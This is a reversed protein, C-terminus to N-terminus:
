STGEKTGTQESTPQSNTSQTSTSPTEDNIQFTTSWTNCLQMVQTEDPTIHAYALQRWPQILNYFYDSLSTKPQAKVIRYCELETYGSEFECHHNDMLEVLSSGLLLALAQRHEGQQWLAWATEGPSDPLSTRDLNVGFLVDPKQKKLKVRKKGNFLHIVSKYKIILWLLLIIALGWLVIEFITALFKGFGLFIKSDSANNRENEKSEWDFRHRYRRETKYFPPKKVIDNISSKATKLTPTQNQHDRSSLNDPPSSQSTNNQSVDNQIVKDQTTNLPKKDEQTLGEVSFGSFIIGIFLSLLGQTINKKRYKDFIDQTRQKLKKFTLEVDWAELITRQNIYLAFGGIVYYLSLFSIILYHVTVQLVNIMPEEHWVLHNGNIYHNDSFYYEPMFIFILVTLNFYIVLHMLLLLITLWSATATSLKHLSRLRQQRAISKLNELQIVPLDMSRTPSLRRWTLSAFWQKFFYSPLAKVTQWFTPPAGFLAHSIYYLLPREWLPKLWWFVLIVLFINDYFLLFSLFFIPATIGFWIGALPKWHQHVMRFGLSLAEWSNRPRVKATIAELKM